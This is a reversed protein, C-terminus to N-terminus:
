PVLVPMSTSQKSRTRNPMSPVVSKMRWTSPTVDTGRHIPRVLRRAETSCRMAINATCPTHEQSSHVAGIVSHSAWWMRAHILPPDVSM